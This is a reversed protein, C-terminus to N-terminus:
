CEGRLYKGENRQILHFRNEEDSSNEIEENSYEKSRWVSLDMEKQTM